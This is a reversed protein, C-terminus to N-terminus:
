TEQAPTTTATASPTSDRPPHQAPPPAPKPPRPPRGEMIDNIQEADITEWELLAKAMVEVKDRNEEILRRALAYQQDIIRRIESDVKQMTSESVNKHTTISRGLFVEGENEGYVMPGLSESMGWRIVMNRAMETAREFDNSAGTTMQSMFIVEAIRGGFLVSINQLIQERDMSYRDETPLQM